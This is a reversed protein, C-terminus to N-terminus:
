GHLISAHKASDAFCDLHILWYREPSDAIGQKIQETLWHSDDVLNYFFSDIGIFGDLFHTLIHLIKSEYGQPVNVLQTLSNYGSQILDDALSQVMQRNKDEAKHIADFFESDLGNVSLERKAEIHDYIVLTTLGFYREVQTQCHEFSKGRLLIKHQSIRKM